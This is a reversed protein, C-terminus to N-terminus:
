SGVWVRRAKRALSISAMRLLTLYPPPPTALTLKVWGAPPMIPVSAPWGLPDTASKPVSALLPANDAARCSTSFCLNANSRSSDGRFSPLKSWLVASSARGVRTLLGREVALQLTPGPLETRSPM